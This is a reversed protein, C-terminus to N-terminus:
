IIKDRLLQKNHAILTRKELHEFAMRNQTKEPVNAATSFVQEQFASNDMTSLQGNATGLESGGLM